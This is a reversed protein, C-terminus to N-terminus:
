GTTLHAHHRSDSDVFSEFTAGPQQGEGGASFSPRSEADVFVQRISPTMCNICVGDVNLPGGCERNNCYRM